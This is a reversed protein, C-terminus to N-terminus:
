PRAATRPKNEHPLFNINISNFSTKIRLVTPVGYNTTFSRKCAGSNDWTGVLTTNIDGCLNAVDYNYHMPDHTAFTVQTRSADLTLAEVQDATTIDVEGYSCKLDYRGAIRHLTLNSKKTTGSFSGSIDQAILDGYDLNVQMDGQVQELRVEGFEASVTLQKAQWDSLIINGYRNTIHLIRDQPVWLEYVAQLNSEMRGGSENIFFYNKLVKEDGDTDLTYRLAALDQEAVGRRPHRAVLQLTLKVEDQDWGKVTVLAKEAEITLSAGPDFDFTKQITKTVVQIKDQARASLSFLLLLGIYLLQRYRM